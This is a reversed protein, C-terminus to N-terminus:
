IEGRDTSKQENELETDPVPREHPLFVQVQKVRLAHKLERVATEIILQPDSSERMKTTIQAVRHEREARQQTQEILRANEVALGVQDAVEQLFHLEDETWQREPDIEELNLYGIIQGRVTIPAALAASAETPEETNEKIIVAQRSEELKRWVDNDMDNSIPLLKGFRYEFGSQGKEAFVQSWEHRLYQRHLTQLETLAKQTESLLRVNEIAVAVQDALTGLLSIDEESFAAQEMSQVDLAGIVAEGVKLPLAMESRTYPLDPNNFYVADDGVDLAIRAQGSHITYGVIGELGVKLRHNKELMRQGGESNAAQLVAYEGTHDTLFIGVHYFAFRESLLQAVKNLLSDQDKISTITQSVEAITQLQDARRKAQHSTKALESTREVVRHELSELTRRLETTMGNFASSLMGIEDRSVPAQIWLDGATVRQATKTLEIIPTTIRRSVLIALCTSAILFLGGIYLARTAMERPPNKFISEPQLYAVKWSRNTLEIVAGTYLDSDMGETISYLFPKDGGAALLAQDFEALNTALEESSLPPLRGILQLYETEAETKQVVSKNILGQNAGHALRIHDEDLLVAYSLEGAKANNREVLTQLVQADYLVALIGTTSDQNSVRSAFSIQRTSGDPSVIVPSIYIGENVMINNFNPNGLFFIDYQPLNEDEPMFTSAILQGHPDFLLWGQMFPNQASRKENISELLENGMAIEASGLSDAHNQLFAVINESRAEAAVLLSSRAIFDDIDQATQVAAALLLRNASERLADELSRNFFYAMFALPFLTIIIFIFILRSRLPLYGRENKAPTTHLISPRMRHGIRGATKDGSRKTHSSKM